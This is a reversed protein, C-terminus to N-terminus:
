SQSAKACQICMRAYPVANLRTSGIKSGCGECIGFTGADLRVLADEVEQRLVAENEALGARVVAETEQSGREAAHIPAISLDGNEEEAGQGQEGRLAAEQEDLRHRMAHLEQQYNGFKTSRPM